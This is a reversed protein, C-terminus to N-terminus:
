FFNNIPKQYRNNENFKFHKNINLKNGIINETKNNLKLYM